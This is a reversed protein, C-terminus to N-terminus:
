LEIVDVSGGLTKEALDAVSRHHTFVIPQFAASAEALSRITAATRDDDFTQFLDDAIFPAPENRGAYDELYALRLALHLQDRTGDSLGTISVENGNDRIGVLEAVDAANFRRSLGSFGGSTLARFFVGARGLIPDASTQRQREISAGILSSALKLVAWQRAIDVTEAEIAKREFAAAEAGRSLGLADRERKSASVAAYIENIEGDIRAEAGELAELEIVAAAKDFTMLAARADEERLNPAVQRFRTRCTDLESRLDDRATLREGLMKPDDPHDHDDLLMDLAAQANDRETSAQSLGEEAEALAVRATKEQAAATRAEVAKQHLARIADASSLHELEPAIASVLAAVNEEFAAIEREMGLVRRHRNQEQEKIGPVDSWVALAAEVESPRADTPLGIATGAERLAASAADHARSAEDFERALRAIRNECDRRSTELARSDEWVAEAQRLRESVARSLATTPMIEHATLGLGAALQGLAPRLETEVRDLGALRDDECNALARSELLRALERLWTMMHDPALPTVALRSFTEDYAQRAATAAEETAALDFTTREIALSATERERLRAAHASVRDAERIAADALIDATRTLAEVRAVAPGIAQVDLVPSRGLIGDALEAFARDRNDRASGIAEDTPLTGGDQAAIEADLERLRDGEADQRVKLAAVQRACEAMAERHTVLSQPDPLPTGALRELDIVEPDLRGAEEAIRRRATVLAARAEEGEDLRRLDPTLAALSDRWPKPDILLTSPREANLRELTQRDEAIRGEIASVRAAAAQALTLLETMRALAADSPHTRGLTEVAIGLRRALQALRDRYDDREATIRPLDTLFKQYAGREEFLDLIAQANDLHGPHLTIRDTERRARDRAMQARQFAEGAAAIKELAGTLRAGLARPMADLDSFADLATAQADIEALIPQLKLYGDIEGQRRRNDARERAKAEYQQELTEISENLAKWDSARLENERETRRAEEHRDVLQYFVRSSSRRSSFIRDAENDLTTRAASLGLIGSSAAFLMTGMEGGASLMEDSGKRLRASDLGFAREFISRTMSGLFPLLADDRLAEEDDTDALLTNKNGRRRRFALSQGDKARVTAGIRLSTAEHLFDFSKSHEFGFLLDSLAALASSKGAENAGYVIHIGAGQRFELARDTLAGYRLLHLREIRM